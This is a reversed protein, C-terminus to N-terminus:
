AEGGEQSPSTGVRSRGGGVLEVRVQVGIREVMTPVHSIVGVKRGLAQLADLSAIATDLTEPDLSGFGEDIFLSEVSTRHSALFALGLALALSVLFSEGGSLSYVSRVEDGMDADVVQLALDSGPSRELRYRRALDELHRNAQALLSDLTLSQAFSRFKNGDASGILERLQEWVRASVERGALEEALKGADQRRRDDDQLRGQVAAWRSQAQEHQVQAESLVGTVGSCDLGEPRTAAHADLQRRREEALVRADQETRALAELAIREARVWAADHALLRRVTDLDLARASLAPELAQRAEACDAGWRAAEDAWHQVSARGAALASRADAVRAAAQQHASLATRQCEQLEAEVQDAARGGLPGQRAAELRASPRRLRRGSAM